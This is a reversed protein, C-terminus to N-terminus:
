NAIKGVKNASIGLIDAIETVSYTKKEVVPLAVVEKGVLTNAAYIDAIQKFEPINSRDALRM